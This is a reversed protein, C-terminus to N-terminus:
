ADGWELRREGDALAVEFEEDPTAPAGGPVLEFKRIAACKRGVEDWARFVSGGVFGSEAL